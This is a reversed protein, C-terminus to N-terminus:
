RLAWFTPRAPRAEPRGLGWAAPAASPPVVPASGRIERRVVQPALDPAGSTGRQAQPKHPGEPASRQSRDPHLKAAFQEAVDGVKLGPHMVSPGTLYYVRGNKVAPVDPMSAWYRRADELVPQPKEPLLHFVAEPRLSVIKERDLGPYAKREAAVVNSGGAVTLLDDLFTGPGAAGAGGEDTVVLTPVRPRGAVSRAVADLHDRMAREAASAKETEGIAEGIARTAVSIDALTDIQIYVPRIGLKEARQKFGAPASTERAQVVVVGPRLAGLREWDVTLYDGAAPLGNVPPKGRDYNSVAVLHERGGIALLIDTAAPSLSAVAPQKVQPRTSAQPPATAAGDDCGALLSVTLLIARLRGPAARRGRQRMPPPHYIQVGPTDFESLKDPGRIAGVGVSVRRGAAALPDRSVACPPGGHNLFLLLMLM